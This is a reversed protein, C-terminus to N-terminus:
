PLNNFCYNRKKKQMKDKVTLRLGSQISEKCNSDRQSFRCTLYLSSIDTYKAHLPKDVPSSEEDNESGERISLYISDPIRQSIRKSFMLIIYSTCKILQCLTQTKGQLELILSIPSFCNLMTADPSVFGFEQVNSSKPM